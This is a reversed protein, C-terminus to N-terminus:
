KEDLNILWNVLNEFDSEGAISLHPAEIHNLNRSACSRPCGNILILGDREQQDHSLFLFRDRMRFQVREVMEVREYTPNCGGCYKIGIKKRIEM